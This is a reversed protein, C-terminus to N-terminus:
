SSDSISFLATLSGFSIELRHNRGATQQVQVNQKRLQTSDFSPQRQAVNYGATTLFKLQWIETGTDIRKVAVADAGTRSAVVNM